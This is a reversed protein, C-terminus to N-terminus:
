GRVLDLTTCHFGGGLTRSHTLEMPIVTFQHRMLQDHLHTQLRDVIVTHPDVVLMNMGIWDSAYPYQYFDRPQIEHIWIKEWDRFVRPCNDENVRQANLMVLGPRLPMITSDIHQGAYFDCTEVTLDPFQQALWAAAQATGSTSLLVLLTDELRCVNAADLIMGPGAPMEIVRSARDLVEGLTEVEQDRCPMMMRPVVVTDGVVLLRDRPCYNYMGNTAAFDRYQPRLVEAGLGQLVHALNDLELEAQTQIEVPVPGQPRPTQTWATPQDLLDRPWNAGRASGVVVSRLTDWENCSNIM